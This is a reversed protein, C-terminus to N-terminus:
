KTEKKRSDIPVLRGRGNQGFILKSLGRKGWKRKEGVKEEERRNERGKKKKIM